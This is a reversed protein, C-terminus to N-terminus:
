QKKLREGCEICFVKETDFPYKIGCKPCAVPIASQLTINLVIKQGRLFEKKISKEVYGNAIIKVTSTSEVVNDKWLGSDDTRGKLVNDIWVFAGSIPTKTGEEKVVIEFSPEQLELKGVVTDTQQININELKLLKYEDRADFIVKYKKNIPLAVKLPAKASTKKSININSGEIRVDASLTKEPQEKDYVVFTIWKNLSISVDAPSTKDVKVTVNADQYKGSPKSFRLSHVGFKLPIIVPTMGFPKDENNVFVLTSEPASNVSFNKFMYGKLKIVNVDKISAIECDWYKQDVGAFIKTKEQESFNLSCRGEKVERAASGLKEFGESLLEVTHKGALLEGEWPTNGLKNGDIKVEAGSPESDIKMFVSLVVYIEQINRTGKGRGEVRVTQTISNFGEKEATVMYSGPLIKRLEITSNQESTKIKSLIIKDDRSKMTVIVGVPVTTLIADPPHIHFHIKKGMPTINGPIFIDFIIFLIAAIVAGFFGKIFIKHYLKFKLTLWDGVEEFVTKGKAEEPGVNVSTGVTPSSVGIIPEMGGVIFDRCTIKKVNPDNLINQLNLQKVQQIYEQEKSLEESFVHSVFSSVETALEEMERGKLMENLDHLIELATQYRKQKDKELAKAVIEILKDPIDLKKLPEFDFKTQLVQSKITSTDGIFLQSNSLIEYLVVGCSFIDSRHDIDIDGRIQEPSMYGYKGTIIRQKTERSVTGETTAIGFDSLKVVGHYSILINELSIDRYVLKYHKETLPDKALRNAYDLAKLIGLCIHIAMEWPLKIDSKRCKKLLHELNYGRIYDLLLYYGGDSSQWFHHVRVINDNILNKAILAEKYFMEIFKPEALHDLLKKVAVFNKLSFDYAKWVVGFGGKGIEKITLYQNNILLQEQTQQNTDMKTSSREM